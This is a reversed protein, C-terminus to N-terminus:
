RDGVSLQPNDLMLRDGTDFTSDAQAYMAVEELVLVAEFPFSPSAMPERWLM